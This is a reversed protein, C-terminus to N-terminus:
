GAGHAAVPIAVSARVGGAPLGTVELRGEDGYLHALRERTNRLGIGADRGLDWGAPLGRGDDTVDIRVAGNIRRSTIGISGAGARNAIGHNVANEVLPQIVLNPVLEDETGPDIDFAVVLRDSFRVQEIELYRRVFDMERRLPIRQENGTDLAARLLESLGSIMKVAQPREGARVLGAIAHLANFLFHPHMQMRLMQVKAQALEAELRSTTLARDVYRQYFDLAFIGAVILFYNAVRMPMNLRFLGEIVSESSFPTGEFLQSFAHYLIIYVAAHLYAVLVGILAHAALARGWRAPLIPVRRSLWLILPLLMGWTYWFLIQDLVFASLPSTGGLQANSIYFQLGFLTGAATFLVVGLLWPKWARKRFVM